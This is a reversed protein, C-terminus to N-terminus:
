VRRAYESDELGQWLTGRGTDRDIELYRAINWYEGSEGTQTSKKISTVCLDVFNLIQRNNSISHM